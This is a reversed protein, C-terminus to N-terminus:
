KNLYGFSELEDQLAEMGEISVRPEAAGATIFEGMQVLAGSLQALDERYSEHDDLDLVNQQEEPELGFDYLELPAYDRKNGENAKILKLMETRVARLLIGEFDLHAYVHTTLSNGELLDNDFLSVGQWRESPELGALRALTPALDVHRAIFANKNGGYENGPLKILLPVAIQEDYLSLGHWWGGHEYFEEGHDATFVIVSDDYLGRDRLGQLFRGVEADMFEIEYSYANIMRERMTPGDEDSRAEPDPNPMQARSFGKGPREPDRFPDHPDMYHLFLMFPSEAPRLNSDIWELGTSTVSDAPQYYDTIAVRGGLKGYARNVVMRLIDYLVLKESSPQAWFYLDPKLDTYDVFGQNYNFISTINPNNSYGKTYYGGENLTEAFTVIEDPLTSAKGTATHSEPYEGSFIAGFSAKTWSSQAYASQFLVSDDKLASINPTRPGAEENYISLFDARLTDVAVVFINPGSVSADVTFAPPEDSPKMAASAGVGLAVLMAYAGVGLLAGGTWCRARGIILRGVIMAVLALVVASGALAGYDSLALAHEAVVDRKYRFQGFVLTLVALTGGLSLAFTTATKAFRDFLLYFFTLGAAIALGMGTFVVGYVTPAWWFATAEGYSNLTSIHWSAEVLGVLAGAILGGFLGAGICGALKRRYNALTDPAIFFRREGSEANMERVSEMEALFEQRNPRSALILLPLSLVLPVFEGAWLGLHGFLASETEGYQAGLLIAMVGERVGLGSVTPAIVSAVIVLPSAFLIDMMLESRGGSIAMATGFYMLCIGLHVCLGMLVALILTTRHGSYATVAMGLKNVKARIIAPTPVAAVLVQAIRPNLLLLFATAIFVFLITLVVGLVAYNFDFLRAGLPLTLFVLLGLAVFGIVKEVAIVTTCKIVEGTYAASEVLRYGDLGVTGPLFLGIARGMLWCKTLYWFPLKIGQGKLLLHWRTIGAFIGFLKIVAAFTLWIAATKLDLQRIVEVVDGLSIGDFKELITFGTWEEVLDAVQDPRMLTFVVSAIFLLKIAVFIYKKKM